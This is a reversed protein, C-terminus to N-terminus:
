KTFRRANGPKKKANLKIRAKEVKELYDKKTDTDVVPITVYIDKGRSDKDHLLYRHGKQTSKVVVGPLAPFKGKKM